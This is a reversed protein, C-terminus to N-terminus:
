HDQFPDARRIFELSVSNEDGLVTQLNSAELATTPDDALRTSHELTMRDLVEGTNPDRYVPAGSAGVFEMGADTFVQQMSADRRVAAWFRDRHRDFAARAAVRAEDMRGAAVHGRITALDATERANRTRNWAGALRSGMRQGQLAIAAVRQAATLSVRDLSAFLRSRGTGASRGMASVDSVEAHGAFAADLAAGDADVSTTSSPAPTDVAAEAEVHPAPPVASELEPAVAPAVAAEDAHPAVTPVTETEPAPARATSPTDVEPAVHATPASVGPLMDVDAIGVPTGGFGSRLPPLADATGVMVAGVTSRVTRMGSVASGRVSTGVARGRAEMATDLENGGAARSMAASSAVAVMAQRFADEHTAGNARMGLYSTCGAVFPAVLQRVVPNNSGGLAAGPIATAAAIAAALAAEEILEERTREPAPPRPRLLVDAAASMGNIAMEGVIRGTMATGASAGELALGLSRGAGGGVGAIFGERLGVEGEAAGADIVEDM